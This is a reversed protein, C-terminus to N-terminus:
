FNKNRVQTESLNLHKALEKREAGVVYKNKDFAQELKLMQSPSFATRIRKPRRFPILFEPLHPGSFFLTSVYNYFPSLGVSKTSTFNTPSVKRILYWNKKKWTRMQGFEKSGEPFWLYNARSKARTLQQWDSSTKSFIWYTSPM